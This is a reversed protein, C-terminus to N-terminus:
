GRLLNADLPGRFFNPVRELFARGREPEWGGRAANGLFKREIDARSL